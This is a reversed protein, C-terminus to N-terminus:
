QSGTLESISDLLARSKKTALLAIEGNKMEITKEKNDVHKINRLNVVFSKHTRFFESSIRELNKINGYFHLHSKNLHMTVKHAKYGTTFFMIDGYPIFRTISGDNVKFSGSNNNLSRDVYRNYVTDICSKISDIYHKSGDKVIYDMAEVKYKFTLPSLEVHQTAFIITAHIDNERVHAALSLGNMDHKLNIDLIYVGKQNPYTQLYSIVESPDDTSLAIKMPYEEILIHNSVITEIHERQESDDECIVIPIM